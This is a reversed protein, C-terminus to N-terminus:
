LVCKAWSNLHAHLGCTYTYFKQNGMSVRVTNYFHM